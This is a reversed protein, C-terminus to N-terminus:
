WGFNQLNRMEGVRNSHGVWRMRRPRIVKIINPSWCLDHLEEIHLKELGGTVEGRM